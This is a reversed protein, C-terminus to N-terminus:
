NAVQFTDTPLASLRHERTATTIYFLVEGSRVSVQGVTFNKAGRIPNKFVIKSGPVLAAATVTQM